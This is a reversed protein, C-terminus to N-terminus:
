FRWEVGGYVALPLSPYGRVEAYNEDLLNEVRLKLLVGEAVEYHTFLRVTTYDEVRDPASTSGDFRRSAFRVGAGVLWPQTAQWAAQADFVHRPRRVLPVDLVDNTAKLYTHAIDVTVDAHPTLRLATEVGESSARGTNLIGPVTFDYTFLNTFRNRFYTVGLTAVDRALVQDFGLDWGKSEEPQIGPNPNYWPGGVVYIPRPANFGTGYNGRLKPGQEAVQYAAGVRWTTADSFQEFDDYRVGGLVSLGEVPRLTASAYAGHSDNDFRNRDFPTVTTVRETEITAGAVLAVQESVEWSNKWDVVNRTDRSYYDSDFPSGVPPPVPIYTYEQQVWGYTLRSRFGEVPAVEAYLTSLHNVSDVRGVSTFLTSGPSEVDVQQGRLTAGVLLVPTLRGEIRTSYSLGTYDNYDRENQTTLSSVSASYGVASSGGSVAVGGGVTEFSGVTASVVGTLPGCGSATDVLIVGGLASSGYLTSQPGRLVEIRDIGALDAAGLFNRYDGDGTNMRIGDVFWLTHDASAGRIFVSTQGGVGGTRAINVGPVRAIAGALDPVQAEALEVQSLVTVVSPTSRPDTPMRMASVVVPELTVAHSEPAAAPPPAEQAALRSAPTTAVALASAALMLSHLRRVSAARRHSPNNM